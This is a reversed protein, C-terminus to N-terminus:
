RIALYCYPSNDRNLLADDTRNVAVFGDSTIYLGPNSSSTANSNSSIFAFYPRSSSFISYMEATAFVARPKFGLSISQEGNKSASVNGTYTGFVFISSIDSQIENSIKLLAMLADKPESSADIGLSDCVDDPLVNAKNYVSGQVSADDAYEFIGEITRGDDLRIRVRNEKGPTPVRDQM